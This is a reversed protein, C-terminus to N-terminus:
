KSAELAQEVDAIIDIVSELGCSVRILGPTIRAEAREEDSLKAHTTSAPHTIITRSDGLNATLSCTEINDLFKRGRELGGKVEFTVIGGGLKMQKKAIEYQPHSELFPYKVSLVEPHSELTQALKLANSCHREFRVELTELSKALTWANFPSITPGTSRCYTIVQDIYEQSGLILGGLVRGQGDMYKTASTTVVDIGFDTPKQGYPTAFCNDVNTLIGHKKGIRGIMELDVVEVGPNTPTELFIMKTNEQIAAEWEAETANVDVYTHEIGFRTLIKTIITHTSGFVSRCAVLHDGAGVVAVISAHIAAMGTAAAYGAETNELACAKNILETFNPNVFRSYVYADDDEGAFAARMDEANEFTFSSTLFMPTSHENYQTKENRVRVAKTADQKNKM